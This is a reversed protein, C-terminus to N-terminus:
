GKSGVDIGRTPENMLLIKSQRELWKAVVVKQQNGGSLSNVVTDISPTKISLRDVWKKAHTKEIKKNLIFGNGIGEINSSTINQKVDMVTAVGEEKRDLPVFGMGM